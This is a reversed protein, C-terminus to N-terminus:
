PSNTSLQFTDTLFTRQMEKVHPSGFQPGGHGAGDIIHLTSKVNARQLAEHLATSQNPPVTSDKNGHIILFPPDNGDVYTIPNVRRIGDKNPMVEGGGLLFSEPSGDNNHKEYGKTTVFLEFDTPGFLDLVAQVDSSQDHWGGNGEFEKVGGSTGLLAALHGGASSGGVAIKHPDINYEKAHARLFRVACKCDEIQAPFPAEGTLRYEITVGVFGHRVMPIIQGLGSEKNGARWGGGHIWAFAPAPTTSQEKPQVIHMKLDRNGGQGFVVDRQLTVDSPLRTTAPRDPGRRPFDAQTLIDNQDQDFREFLADPGQFEDRTVQGDKNADSRRLVEEFSIRRRQQAQLPFFHTFFLVSALTVGNLLTNIKM